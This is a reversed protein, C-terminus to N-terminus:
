LRRPMLVGVRQPHNPWEMRAPSARDQQMMHMPEGHALADILYQSNFGVEFDASSPAIIVGPIEGEAIGGESNKIRGRMAAGPKGTLNISKVRDKSVARLCKIAAIAEKTRAWTIKMGESDPQPIVRVYDPFSGAIVRTTLVGRATTFRVKGADGREVQCQGTALNKSLWQVTKRPVIAGEGPWILDPLRDYMMRHGDTAVLALSLHERGSTNGDHNHFYVGNLYYRADEASMATELFKIAAILDAAPLIASEGPTFKMAPFDAAPLTILRTVAGGATIVAKKDELVITVGGKAGKMAALLDRAPLCTSFTGLGEADTLTESYQMDLDTATITLSGTMSVVLVHSKLILIDNKRAVIACLRAMTAALNQANLPAFGESPKEKPPEAKHDAPTM